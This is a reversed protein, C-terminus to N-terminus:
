RLDDIKVRRETDFKLKDFEGTFKLKFVDMDAHLKDISNKAQEKWVDM